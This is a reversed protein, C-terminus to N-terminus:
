PCGALLNDIWGVFALGYQSSSFWISGIPVLQYASIEFAKGYDKEKTFFQFSFNAITMGIIVPVYIM